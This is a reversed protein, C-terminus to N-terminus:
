VFRRVMQAGCGGGGVGGFARVGAGANGNFAGGDVDHYSYVERLLTVQRTRM